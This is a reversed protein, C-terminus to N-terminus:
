STPPPQQVHQFLTQAPNVAPRKDNESVMVLNGSTDKTTLMAFAKKGLEVAKRIQGKEAGRRYAEVVMAEGDGIGILKRPMVDDLTKGTLSILADAVVHPDGEYRRQSRAYVLKFGPVQTGSMALEKAYDDVDNLWNILADKAQKIYAIRDVSLSRPEPLTYQNVDKITNFTPMVVRMASQEYAPCVPSAPCFKCQVNPDPILPADPKKCAMIADEVRTTFDGAMRSPMVWTRIPGKLHFARPQAVVLVITDITYGRKGLEDAAGVGYIMCQENEEVEVAVGAGHKFDIVYLINLDHIYICIDSTGGCDEEFSLPFKFETEFFVTCGAEGYSAVLDYVYDLVSQISDRREEYNDKRYTQQKGCMVMAEAAHKYGNELAFNLVEHAETGDLAYESEVRPVGDALAVSGPCRLWRHAASASYRAHQRAAHEM